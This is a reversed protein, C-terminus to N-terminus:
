KEVYTELQNYLYKILSDADYTTGSSGYFAMPMASDVTNRITNSGRFAPDVFNTWTGDGYVNNAVAAAAIRAKDADTGIKLSLFDQYEQSEQASKTVPLYGTKIAFDANKETTLYKIFLWSALNKYENAKLMAINTGQSIVFKKDATKYPVPAIGIKFKAGAAINYSLGASSSITMALKLAKFPNSCYSEEEWTYPIGLLYDANMQKFYTIMARAEPTDFKVYGKEVTAGRKTYESGFQRLATIFFNAQSDYGIPYFDIKNKKPDKDKIYNVGSFDFLPDEGKIPNNAEDTTNVLEGQADVVVTKNSKDVYSYYIKDPEAGNEDKIVYVKKGFTGGVEAKGGINATLKEIFQTSVERVEDWTEPVELEYFDFLTKNYVMVETSKNFPLGMIYPDKENGNKYALELNERLFDENFDNIDIALEKDSSNIYGSLDCQIGNYIYQAFHDPYGLAVQPYKKTTIALNIAKTLGAYGGKSEHVIDIYPYKEEFSAIIEDLGETIDKGFGTWFNIQIPNSESYKEKLKSVSIVKPEVVVSKKSNSCGSVGLAMVNIMTLVSAIKIKNKM